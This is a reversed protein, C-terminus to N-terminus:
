DFGRTLGMERAILRAQNYEAMQPVRDIGKVARAKYLPRYQGMINVYTEPSVEQSLFRFISRLEDESTGPMVLYRVLLGHKAISEHDIILPGVQRHMEKIVKQVVDPYDDANLYDRSRQRDFFKLDPMYIDIIGDLLQIVELSEYGGCNYVLPLRFGNQLAVQLAEIIQPVYHTPTVLNLNHCGMSQVELMIQALQSISTKSGHALHSIDYNQCFICLLNCHALFVTGSGHMGVLPREEGFHPGYSAVEPFRGAGCVGKDGRVRNVLCTRPCLRCQELLANLRKIRTTLLGKKWTSLYVPREYDVPQSSNSIM